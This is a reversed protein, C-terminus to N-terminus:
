VDPIFGGLLRERVWKGRHIPHNETNASWAVLWSPQMLIGVREDAPMVIPQAKPRAALNYSTWVQRRGAKQEGGETKTRPIIQVFSKTTTLLERFVDRDRDLISQVLNNTDRVLILADHESNAKEDKFVD